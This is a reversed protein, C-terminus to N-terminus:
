SVRADDLIIQPNNSEPENDAYTKLINIVKTDIENGVMMIAHITKMQSCPITFEPDYRPQQNVAEPPAVGRLSPNM